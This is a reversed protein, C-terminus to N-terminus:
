FRRRSRRGKHWRIQEDLGSRLDVQPSWGLLRQAEDIAGGTRELEGAQAPFRVLRVEFGVLDAVQGILEHVTCSSGGAINVVTGPAVDATAAAVNAAVADGVFTFDRVQSGSGYLEFPRDELVAEILRHIGMDPRQRPGYISFHRLAVTPVGWIEAYLGCLHEAALKTVGYPSHPRPVDTERMPFSPPNGYVSSSSAYVLRSIRSGKAAELLRQTVLVNHESYLAFDGAWSRRVGPQAAHHFVVDVDALFPHPDRVRLDAEVFEFAPNGLLSELNERKVSPDYYSTFSDVGRVTHGDAVLREALQSGIFGAVGTVLAKM